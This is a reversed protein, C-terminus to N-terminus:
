ETRVWGDVWGDKWKSSLFPFPKDSVLDGVVLGLIAMQALRGNNIEKDQLERLAQPDSERYWWDPQYDGPATGQVCCPHIFSISAGRGGKVEEFQKKFLVTELIAQFALIQLIGAM